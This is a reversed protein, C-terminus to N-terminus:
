VARIIPENTKEGKTDFDLAEYVDVLDEFVRSGELSPSHKKLVEYFSRLTPNVPEYVPGNKTEFMSCKGGKVAM